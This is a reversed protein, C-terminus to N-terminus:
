SPSLTESLRIESTVADISASTRAQRVPRELLQVDNDVQVGQLDRDALLLDNALLRDVEGDTHRQVALAVTEAEPDLSCFACAEPRANSVPSRFVAAGAIDRDDASPSM